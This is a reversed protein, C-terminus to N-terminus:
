GGQSHALLARGDGAHGHGGVRARLHRSRRRAHSTSGDLPKGLAEIGVVPVLLTSSPPVVPRPAAPAKFPRLRAGDAEVLVADVAEIARIEDIRGRFVAVM